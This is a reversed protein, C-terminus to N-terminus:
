MRSAKQTDIGWVEGLGGGFWGLVVGWGGGGGDALRPVGVPFRRDVTPWGPCRCSVSSVGVNPKVNSKVNSKAKSKVNSKAKTKVKWNAKSKVRSKVNSKKDPKVNSIVNSKVNSTVKSKMNTKM